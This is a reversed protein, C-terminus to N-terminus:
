HANVVFNRLSAFKKERGAARKESASGSSGQYCQYKYNPRDAPQGPVVRAGDSGKVESM